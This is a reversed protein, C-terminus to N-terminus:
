PSVDFRRIGLSGGIHVEPPSGAGGVLNRVRISGHAGLAGELIARYLPAGLNGSPLVLLEGNLTTVIVEPGAVDSTLEAVAIVSAGYFPFDAGNGLDVSQTVNFQQGDHDLVFLRSRLPEGTASAPVHLPAFLPEDKDDADIDFAALAM